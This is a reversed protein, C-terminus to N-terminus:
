RDLTADSTTSTTPITLANSMSSTISTTSMTSTTICPIFRSTYIAGRHKEKIPQTHNARYQRAADAQAQIELRLRVDHLDKWGFLAEHAIEGASPRKAPDEDWCRQMLKAWFDPIGKDVLPRLGPVIKYCLLGDHDYEIFPQEGTWLEWMIIGVVYIDTAKSHQGGQFLEPAM